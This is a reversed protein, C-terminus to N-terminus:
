GTFWAPGHNVVRDGLCISVLLFLSLGALHARHARLVLAVVTRFIATGVIFAVKPQAKTKQQPLATPNMPLSFKVVVCLLVAGSELAAAALTFGSLAKPFTISRSRAKSYHTIARTVVTLGSPTVFYNKQDEERDYGIVTGEPIHVDRDIICRNLWQHRGFINVHPVIISEIGGRRVLERARGASLSSNRM